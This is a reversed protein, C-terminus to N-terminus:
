IAANTQFGILAFRGTAQRNFITLIDTSRGRAYHASFRLTFVMGEESGLQAPKLDWGLLEHGTSDGLKERMKALLTPLEARAAPTLAREDFLDAAAGDGNYARYFGNATDLTQTPPTLQSTCGAVLVLLPLLALARQM